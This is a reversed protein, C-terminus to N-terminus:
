TTQVTVDILIQLNIIDYANFYFLLLIFYYTM